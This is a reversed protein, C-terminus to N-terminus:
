RGTPRRKLAVYLAGEGGHRPHALSLGAVASRLPPQALWEPARRRLVGDGGLGKGTIVLIARAGDEWARMVERTLLRRAGDQDHGHLDIARELRERRAALKRRRRAELPPPM